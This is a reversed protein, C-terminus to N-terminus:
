KLAMRIGRVIVYSPNIRLWSSEYIYWPIFESSFISYIYKENFSLKEAIKRIGQRSFLRFSSSASLRMFPLLSIRKKVGAVNRYAPKFFSNNYGALTIKRPNPTDRPNRFSLSRGNTSVGSRQGLFNLLPSASFTAKGVWLVFTAKFPLFIFSFSFVCM